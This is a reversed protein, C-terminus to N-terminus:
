TNKCSGMFKRTELNRSKFQNWLVGFSDVVGALCCIQPFLSLTEQGVGGEFPPTIVEQIDAVQIIVKFRWM